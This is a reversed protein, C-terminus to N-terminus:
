SNVIVAFDHRLRVLFNVNSDEDGRGLSRLLQLAEGSMTLLDGLSKAYEEDSLKEMIPELRNKDDGVGIADIDANGDTSMM